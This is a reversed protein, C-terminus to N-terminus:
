DTEMGPSIVIWDPEEKRFINRILSYKPSFVLGSVYTQLPVM